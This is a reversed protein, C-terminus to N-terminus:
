SKNSPDAHVIEIIADPEEGPHTSMYTGDTFKIVKVYEVTVQGRTYTASPLITDDDMLRRALDEKGCGHLGTITIRIAPKNM